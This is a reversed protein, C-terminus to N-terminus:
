LEVDKPFVQFFEGYRQLYGLFLLYCKIFSREKRNVELIPRFTSIATVPNDKTAKKNTCAPILAQIKKLSPPSVKLWAASNMACLQNIRLASIPKNRPSNNCMTCPKLRVAELLWFRLLLYPALAPFALLLHYEREIPM